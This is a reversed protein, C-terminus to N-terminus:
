QRMKIIIYRKEKQHVHQLSSLIPQNYCIKCYQAQKDRQNVCVSAHISCSVRIIVTFNRFNGLKGNKKRKKKKM